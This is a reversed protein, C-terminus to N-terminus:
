SEDEIDELLIIEDPVDTLDHLLNAGGGAVIATLVKGIILNPIIAEFLNVNALFVLVGSLVWSVYMLWFKDIEYKEFLPTIIAAVLRNALVMFGIVIALIEPEFQM